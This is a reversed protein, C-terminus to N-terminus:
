KNDNKAKLRRIKEEIEQIKTLKRAMTLNHIEQEIIESEQLNKMEIKLIEADNEYTSKYEENFELARDNLDPLGTIYRPSIVSIGMATCELLSSCFARKVKRPKAESYLALIGMLIAIIKKWM